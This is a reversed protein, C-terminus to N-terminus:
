RRTRVVAELRERENANKILSLPTKSGKNKAQADAGHDSILTLALDLHSGSVAAHLPTSLENTKANVLAGVPKANLLELVSHSLGKACLFHLATMGMPGVSNVNAGAHALAACVEGHKTTGRMAAVLMPTMGDARKADKDAGRQLLLNLCPLGGMYAAVHLPALGKDDAQNVQKPEKELLAQLVDVKGEKVLDHVKHVRYKGHSMLVPVLVCVLVCSKVNHETRARANIARQKNGPVCFSM